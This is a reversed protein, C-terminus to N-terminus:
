GATRGGGVTGCLEDAAVAAAATEEGVATPLSPGPSCIAPVFKVRLIMLMCEKQFKTHMRAISFDGKIWMIGRM